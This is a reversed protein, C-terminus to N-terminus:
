VEKLAILFEVPNTDNDLYYRVVTLKLDEHKHTM